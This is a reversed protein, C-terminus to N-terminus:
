GLQPHAAEWTTSTTFFGGALAPSAPSMPEIGPHPLDGPSPFPLGSCNEQRSFGMSLSAQRAIARPPAFPRVHSFRRLVLAPLSCSRVAARPSSLGEPWVTIDEAPPPAPSPVPVRSVQRQPFLHMGPSPKWGAKAAGRGCAMSLCNLEKTGQTPFPYISHMSPFLKPCHRIHPQDWTLGAM